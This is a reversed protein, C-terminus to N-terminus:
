SKAVAPARSQRVMWVCLVTFGIVAGVVNTADFFPIHQEIRGHMLIGALGLLVAEGTRMRDLLLAVVAALPVITWVYATHWSIASFLLLVLVNALVVPWLMLEPRVAPAQTRWTSRLALLAFGVIGLGSLALAWRPDWGAVFRLLSQNQYSPDGASLWPLVERVYFRYLDPPVVLFSAAVLAAVAALFKPVFRADRNVAVVSIVLLAPNIKICAAVALLTATPWNGWSGYSLLGLVSLSSVLLDIQGRQLHVLFPRSLLTLLGAVVLFGLRREKPLRSTMFAIVVIHLAVLGLTWAVEAQDRPFRALLACGPLFSPPYLYSSFGPHWGRSEALGPVSSNDLYPNLDALFATGALHYAEFDGAAALGVPSLVNRLEYMWYNGLLLVTLAVVVGLLRTGCVDRGRVHANDM